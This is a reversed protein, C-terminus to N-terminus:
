EQEDVSIDVIHIVRFVEVDALELHFNLHLFYIFKGDVCGKERIFRHEYILVADVLQQM